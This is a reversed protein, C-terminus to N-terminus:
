IERRGTLILRALKLWRWPYYFPIHWTHRPHYRQRIYSPPPFFKYGIIALRDRWAPQEWIERWSKGVTGTGRVVLTQYQEQQEPPPAAALVAQAAAPLPTNFWRAAARLAAQVGPLIGAQEAEHQVVGWDPETLHYAPTGRILRDLDYLWILRSDGWHQYMQHLCVHLLMAAPDPVLVTLGQWPIARVREWWAALPLHGILQPRSVLDWHLELCMQPSQTYFDMQTLREPLAAADTWLAQTRYGVQEVVQWAQPLQPRQIWLDVDGMPRLAPDDYVMLSLAGGKLLVAQIGQAALQELVRHLLEQRVLSASQNEYYVPSLSPILPQWVPDRRYTAYALPALGQQSLWPIIAAANLGRQQPLTSTGPVNALGSLFQQATLRDPWPGYALASSNSM